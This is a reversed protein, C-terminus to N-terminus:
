HVTEFTQSVEHGAIGGSYAQGEEDYDALEDLIDQDTRDSTISVSGIGKPTSPTPLLGVKQLTPAPVNAATTMLIGFDTMGSFFRSLFDNEFLIEGALGIVVPIVPRIKEPIMEVMAVVKNTVFAAVVMGGVRAGTKVLAMGMDGSKRFVQVKGKKKRRTKM